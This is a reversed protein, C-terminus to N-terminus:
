NKIMAITPYLGAIGPVASVTIDSIKKFNAEDINNIFITKNNKFKNKIREYVKQDNILFYKPKYKKIQECILKYNKNASFFYPTFYNKKTQIIKLTTLGISGTSGLISVLKKM